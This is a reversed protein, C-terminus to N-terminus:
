LCMIEISVILQPWGHLIFFSDLYVQAVEMTTYPHKLAMFHGHKSLRNVVVLIVEKGQSKPLRTIFDMSFTFGCKELFLFISCYVLHLQGELLSPCLEKYLQMGALIGLWLQIM